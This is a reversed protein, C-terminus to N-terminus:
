NSYKWKLFRTVAFIGTLLMATTFFLALYFYFDTFYKSKGEPEIFKVLMVSLKDGRELDFRLMGRILRKSLIRKTEPIKQSLILVVEMRKIFSQPIKTITEIRRKQGSKSNSSDASQQRWSETEIRVKEVNPIIDINIFAQNSGLVRNLNNNVFFELKNELKIKHKLIEAYDIKIISKKPAAYITNFLLLFVAILSKQYRRRKILVLATFVISAFLLYILHFYPNKLYVIIKKLFSEQLIEIRIIQFKDGRDFDLKLIAATLKKVAVFAPKPISTDILLVCNMKKVFSEPIKYIAETSKKSGSAKGGLSAKKTKAPALKRKMPIGQLFETTEPRTIRSVSNLKSSQDAWSETSVCSLEINPIIEVSISSKGAGLTKDLINGIYQELDSEIIFKQEIIELYNISIKDKEQQCFLSANISVLLALLKIFVKYYTM